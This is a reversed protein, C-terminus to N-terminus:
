DLSDSGRSSRSLIQLVQPSRMLLGRLDAPLNVIEEQTMERLQLEDTFCLFTRCYSCISLNGSEPTADGKPDTFGDLLKNCAPCHPASELQGSKM